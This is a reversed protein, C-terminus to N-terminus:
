QPLPSLQVRQLVAGQPLMVGIQGTQALIVPLTTELILDDNLTARLGETNITVRLRTEDLLVIAMGAEAILQTTDNSRQQVRVGRGIISEAELTLTLQQTDTEYLIITYRSQPLNLTQWDIIVDYALAYPNRTLLTATESNAQIGGTIPEWLSGEPIVWRIGAIGTAFNDSFGASTTLAAPTDSPPLLIPETPTPPVQTATVIPRPVETVTLSQAAASDFAAQTNRFDLDIATANQQLAAQTATADLVIQTRQQNQSASEASNTAEIQRVSQTATQDLLARENGLAIRTAALFFAVDTSQQVLALNQQELGITTAALHAERIELATETADFAFLEPAIILSSAVGLALGLSLMIAGLLCGWGNILARQVPHTKRKPIPQRQATM